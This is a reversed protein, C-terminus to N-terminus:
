EMSYQVMERAVGLAQRAAAPSADLSGGVAELQLTIGALGQEVTDHLERALRIREALVAQDQARELRHRNTILRVWLVAAALLPLLIAALVATHRRTWWPGARVRDRICM